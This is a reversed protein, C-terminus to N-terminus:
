ANSHFCKASTIMMFQGIQANHNNAVNVPLPVPPHLMLAFPVQDPVLNIPTPEILNPSFDGGLWMNDTVIMLEPFPIYFMQIAKM